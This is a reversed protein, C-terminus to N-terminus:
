KLINPRNSKLVQEFWNSPVPGPFATLSMLTMMMMMMTMMTIMTTMMTIMTNMMMTIMTTSMKDEDYKMM